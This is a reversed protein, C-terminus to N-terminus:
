FITLRITPKGMLLRQLIKIFTAIHSCTTKIILNKSTAFNVGHGNSIEQLSESGITLKYIVERGVTANFDLLITHYKPFKDFVCELEDYFCDKVDDIKNDTPAHVNLVILHCCLGRMTIYSKRNSVFQVRKVASIIRM